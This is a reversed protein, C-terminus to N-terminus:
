KTIKNAISSASYSDPKIICDYRMAHVWNVIESILNSTKGNHGIDCHISFHLNMDNIDIDYKILELDLAEIFGNANMLSRSTEEFIKEKISKIRNVYESYYFYIGGHHISHVAIVEVIKTQSHSQSDTGITIEIEQNQNIAIYKAIYNIMEQYTCHQGNGRTFYKM